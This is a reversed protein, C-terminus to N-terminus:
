SKTLCKIYAGEMKKSTQDFFKRISTNRISFDVESGGGKSGVPWIGIPWFIEGFGAIIICTKKM